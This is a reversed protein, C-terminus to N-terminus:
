RERKTYFSLVSDGSKVQRVRVLAGADAPPADRRSHELVLVGQDALVPAAAALVAGSDCGYPPDFLVIDFPV